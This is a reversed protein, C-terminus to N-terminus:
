LESVICSCHYGTATEPNSRLPLPPPTSKTLSTPAPLDFDNFFNITSTLTMKLTNQGYEQLFISLILRSHLLFLSFYRKPCLFEYTRLQQFTPAGSACSGSTIDNVNLFHNMTVGLECIWTYLKLTDRNSCRLWSPGSASRQPGQMGGKLPRPLM